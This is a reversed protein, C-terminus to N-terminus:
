AKIEIMPKIRLTLNRIREKKVKRITIWIYKVPGSGPDSDFTCFFKEVLM